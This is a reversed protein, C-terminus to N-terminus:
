RKRTESWLNLYNAGFILAAQQRTDSGAHAQARRRRAIALRQGIAEGVFKRFIGQDHASRVGM